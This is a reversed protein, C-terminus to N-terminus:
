MFTGESGRVKMADPLYVAILISPVLLARILLLNIAATITSINSQILDLDRPFRNSFLILTELVGM